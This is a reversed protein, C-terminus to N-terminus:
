SLVLYQHSTVSGKDRIGHSECHAVSEDFVDASKFWRLGVTKLHAAM